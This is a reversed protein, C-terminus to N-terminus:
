RPRRQAGGSVLAPRRRPLHQVLRIRLDRERSRRPHALTRYILEIKLTYWLEGDARRPGCRHLPQHVGAQPGPPGTLWDVAM